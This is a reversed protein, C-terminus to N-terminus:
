ITDPPVKSSTNETKIRQYLAIALWSFGLLIILSWVVGAQWPDMWTHPAGRGASVWVVTHQSWAFRAAVLGKVGVMLSLVALLIPGVLSPKASVM